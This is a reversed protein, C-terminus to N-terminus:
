SNLDLYNQLIIAASYADSFRRKNKPIELKIMQSLANKSSLTEDSSEVNFGRKQLAGIFGLVTKGIKGEPLGVIIKDFNEKCLILELKNTADKFGTVEIIKWPSALQGYESTALGIRRLGFDIGLYRM